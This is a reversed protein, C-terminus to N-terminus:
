CKSYKLGGGELVALTDRVPGRCQASLELYAVRSFGSHCDLQIARIYVITPAQGGEVSKKLIKIGMINTLLNQQLFHRFSNFTFQFSWSVQMTLTCHVM